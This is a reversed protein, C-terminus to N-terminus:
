SRRALRYASIGCAKFATIENNKALVGFVVLVAALVAVPTFDYILRPTLFFLYKVVLDIASHNRIIDNLLSSSSSCTSVDAVFSVLSLVFYFLLDGSHLYGRDARLLPFGRWGPIRNPRRFLRPVRQQPARGISRVFAIFRPRSTATARLRWARWGSLGFVAFVITRFGCPLRPPFQARAAGAQDPQDNGMYYIFAIAVTLIM